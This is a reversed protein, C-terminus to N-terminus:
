ARSQTKGCGTFGRGKLAFGFDFAFDFILGSWFWGLGFDFDFDFDSNKRLSDPFPRMFFLLIHISYVTREVMGSVRFCHLQSSSAIRQAALM